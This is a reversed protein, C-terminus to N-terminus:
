IEKGKGDLRVVRAGSTLCVLEGNDLKMAKMIKEDNTFSFSFVEQGKRDVEILQMDTAIFTNGNALRQAMLPGGPVTHQWTIKGDLERETGRQLHYEAVLIRDKPAHPLYQVDLPFNLGNVQWRVTNDSDVELVRGQDLLVLVTYGQLRPAE